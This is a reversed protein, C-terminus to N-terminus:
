AGLTRAIEGNVAPSDFDDAIHVRGRWIGPKRAPARRRVWLEVDPWRWIPGAALEAVPAPFDRHRRRWSQVTNISRGARAALETVSVLEGAEEAYPARYEGLRHASSDDPIRPRAFGQLEFDRDFALARDIGAARMAVFSVHDVLSASTAAARRAEVAARHTPEDVWIVAISPLLRDILAAAAPGGLRRRVLQDTEVVVYNTTVLEDHELLWHFARAAEDHRQDDQALAAYLASTDVFVTM